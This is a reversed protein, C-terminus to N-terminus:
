GALFSGSVLGRKVDPAATGILQVEALSELLWFASGEDGHHGSTLWRADKENHAVVVAGRLQDYDMQSRGLETRVVHYINM